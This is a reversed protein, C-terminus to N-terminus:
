QKAAKEIELKRNSLIKTLEADKKWAIAVNYFDSLHQVTQATRAANQFFLKAFERNNKLDSDNFSNFQEIVQTFGTFSELADKVDYWRNQLTESLVPTETPNIPEAQQEVEISSITTVTGDKQLYTVSGDSQLAQEIKPTLPLAACLKKIPIRLAMAAYHDKWIEKPEKSFVKQKQGSEGKWEYQNESFRRSKEAAQKNIVEFLEGGGVFEARAYFHVTEDKTVDAPVHSLFKGTGYKFDFQDEAYVERSEIFLIRDTQLALAKWGKYGVQFCCVQGYKDQGREDKGIKMKRAILFCEGFDRELRFGMTACKYLAGLISSEDCARLKEDTLLHVAAECVRNLLGKDQILTALRSKQLAAFTDSQQPQIILENQASM